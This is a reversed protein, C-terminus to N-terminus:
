GEGGLERVGFLSKQILILIQFVTDHIYIM